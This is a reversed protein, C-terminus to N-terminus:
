KVYVVEVFDSSEEPIADMKTNCILCIPAKSPDPNALPHVHDCTVCVFVYTMM